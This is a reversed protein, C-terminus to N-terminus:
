FNKAFDRAELIPYDNRLTLLDGDGSVLWDVNAAILTALIPMDTPDRIAAGPVEELEVLEARLM